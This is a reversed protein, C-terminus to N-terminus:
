RNCRCGGLLAREEDAPQALELIAAVVRGADRTSVVVARHRADHAAAALEAVELLLQCASGAGPVTPMPWVRQAVCPRGDSSFAVRVLDARDADDVVADDLVVERQAGLEDRRPACNELSVSVSIKACRTSRAARRRRALVEVVATRVRARALHAAAVREDHHAVLLRARQDHRLVGRREDDAEAVALVEDGRSM